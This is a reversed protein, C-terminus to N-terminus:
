YNTMHNSNSSTSPLNRKKGNPQVTRVTISQKAMKAAVILKLANPNGENTSVDM